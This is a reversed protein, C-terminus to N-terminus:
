EDDKDAQSKVQTLLDKLRQPYPVGLLATNELVSLGENAMYFFCAADRFVATGMAKDLQAAVLVVLLMVGKKLLGVWGAKSDLGGTDSKGSRGRLAVAWGTAYDVAMLALLVQLVGDWGGLAGVCAGGLLALFKVIKDWMTAMTM